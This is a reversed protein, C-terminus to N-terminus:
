NTTVTSSTDTHSGDSETITEETDVQTSNDPYEITIVTTVTVTDGETVVTTEQSSTAGNVYTVTIEKDTTYSEGNYEYIGQVTISSDDANSNITVNGSSDVSAYSAGSTISWTVDSHNVISGDFLFDLGFTEASIASPGLIMYVKSAIDKPNYKVITSMGNLLTSVDKISVEVWEGNVKKYFKHIVEWNGNVKIYKM